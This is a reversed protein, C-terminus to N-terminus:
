GRGEMWAWANPAGIPSYAMPDSPGPSMLKELFEPDQAALRYCNEGAYRVSDAINDYYGDKVPKDVGPQSRGIKDQPLHYGGAM